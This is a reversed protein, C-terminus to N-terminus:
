SNQNTRNGNGIGVKDNCQKAYVDQSNHIIKFMSFDPQKSIEIVDQEWSINLESLKKLVRKAHLLNGCYILACGSKMHTITYGFPGRDTQTRHIALDDKVVANIKVKGDVTLISIQQVM